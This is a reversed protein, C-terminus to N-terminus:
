SGPPFFFSVNPEWIDAYGWGRPKYREWFFKGTIQGTAGANKPTRIIIAGTWQYGKSASKPNAPISPGQFGVGPLRVDYTVSPAQSYNPTVTFTTDPTAYSIGWEASAGITGEGKGDQIGGQLGGGVTFSTSATGVTSNPGYHYIDESNVTSFILKEWQCYWGVEDCKEVYSLNGQTVQMVILYYDYNKHLPDGPLPNLQYGNVWIQGTGGQGSWKSIVDDGASQWPGQPASAASDDILVKPYPVSTRSNEHLEDLFSEVQANFPFYEASEGVLTLWGVKAMGRGGGVTAFLVCEETNQPLVPSHIKGLYHSLAAAHEPMTVMPVGDAHMAQLQKQGMEGITNLIKEDPLFVGRPRALGIDELRGIRKADPHATNPSIKTREKDSQISAILARDYIAAGGEALLCVYCLDIPTGSKSM